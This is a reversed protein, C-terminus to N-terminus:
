AEAVPKRARRAALQQYLLATILGGLPIALLLPDDISRMLYAFFGDEPPGSDPGSARWMVWGLPLCLLSGLLLGLGSAQLATLGHRAAPLLCLAPLLLGFTAGYSIVSGIVFFLLFAFVRNGGTDPLAILLGALAPFALPALLLAPWDIHKM